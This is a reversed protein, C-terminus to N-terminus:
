DPDCVADVEVEVLMDPEILGKIEVMTNVPPHGVFLEHHARAIDEWRSMDTVYLRTRVVDELDGGLRQLATQIIAFCRKTQAYADDPAYTHGQDDVPATGSVFIQNGVRMARAYGAIAEWQSGSSVRQRSISM